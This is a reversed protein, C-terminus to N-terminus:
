TLCMGVKEHNSPPTTVKSTAKLGPSPASPPVPEPGAPTASPKPGDPAPRHEFERRLREMILPLRQSREFRAKEQIEREMRRREQRYRLAFVEQQDENLTLGSERYATGIEAQVHAQVDDRIAQKEEPPLTSWLKQNKKFTQQEDTAQEGRTIALEQVREHGAKARGEDPSVAPGIVPAHPPAPKASGKGSATPPSGAKAPGPTSPKAPAPPPSKAAPAPETATPTPGAAPPAQVWPTASASPPPPTQAHVGEVAAWGAVGTVILALWGPGRKWGSVSGTKQEASSQMRSNREDKM